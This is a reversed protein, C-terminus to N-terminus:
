AKEFLVAAFVEGFHCCLIGLLLDGCLYLSKRLLALMCLLAFVPRAGVLEAGLYILETKNYLVALIIVFNGAFLFQGAKGRM